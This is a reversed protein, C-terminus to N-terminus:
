ERICLAVRVKEVIPRRPGSAASASRRRSTADISRGWAMSADVAYSHDWVSPPSSPRRPRVAYFRLLERVTLWGLLAGDDQPVYGVLAPHCSSPAAGNLLVSGRVRSGPPPARGALADIFYKELVPPGSSRRSAGRAYLVPLTRSLSEVVLCGCRFM